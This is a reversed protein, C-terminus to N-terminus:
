WAVLRRRSARGSRWTTLRLEQRGRYALSWKWLSKPFPSAKLMSRTTWTCSPMNNRNGKLALVDSSGAVIAHEATAGQVHMADATMTVWTLFRLCRPSGARSKRSRSRAQFPAGESAIAQVFHLPSRVSGDSFSRRLAKGDTAIVGDGLREGRGEFSSSRYRSEMLTSPTQRPEPNRARSSCKAFITAPRTALGPAEAGCNEPTGADAQRM